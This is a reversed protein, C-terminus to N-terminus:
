QPASHPTSPDPGEMTLLTDMDPDADELLPILEPTKDLTGDDHRPDRSMADAALHQSGRRYEISFPLFEQLRLSWRALKGQLHPSTM